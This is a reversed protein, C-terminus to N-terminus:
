EQGTDGLAALGRETETALRLGCAQTAWGKGEPGVLLVRDGAEQLVKGIRGNKRDFVWVDERYTM